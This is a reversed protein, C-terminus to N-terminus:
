AAKQPVLQGIVLHYRGDRPVWLRRGAFSRVGDAGSQRVLMTTVNENDLKERVADAVEASTTQNEGLVIAFDGHIVVALVRDGDVFVREVIKGLLQQRAQAVHEVEACHDWYTRFHELLDAAEVLEDYDVPRLSEIERQLQQRKELYEAKDIFGQEWRFDIRGIIEQIQAMRELSTANEVRSRVATEVRDRFGDPIQMGALIDVVQENLSEEDIHPQPCKGYGREKSLCRFYSKDKSKHYSPRM